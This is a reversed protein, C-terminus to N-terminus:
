FMGREEEPNFGPGRPGIAQNLEPSGGGVMGPPQDDEPFKEGTPMEPPLPQVLEEPAAGGLDGEPPAPMQQQVAAQPDQGYAQVWSPLGQMQMQLQRYHEALHKDYFEQVEPSLDRFSPEKMRTLLESIHVQHNEWWRVKIKMHNSEDEMDVNEQRQYNRDSTDDDYFQDLGQTGFAKRFRVLTEPDEAPGFGGIQLLQLSLEKEYSEFKPLMSGAAVEVDTSDIFERQFLMVEPRKMEGLVSITQEVNMNERWMELLNTGLDSFADELSRAAGSLKVADQDALMGIARGSVVGSPNRGQSVEHVGSVDYMNTKLTNVLEYLSAPIPVPPVRQPAPGLNPNYFIIHDPRNKIGNRGVSGAAATWPPSSSLNRLELVQSITRNLEKQLPIIGSVVGTGWFRGAMEGIRVQTLSFRGGPLPTEELLTAGSSLIRRGGPHESSPKEQYELVRYVKKEDLGTTYGRVDRKWMSDSDRSGSKLKRQFDISEVAGPWRMELAAETLVHALIVWKSNSLHTAEPDPYVDFPSWAEVVPFGSPKLDLGDQVLDGAHPNWYTNFFGSGAVSAWWVVEYTVSPMKMKRYLYDLLHGSAKAKQRRDDEAGGPRVIWGPRQQTLKSATTNVIPRILNNTLRVRYSPAKPELPRGHKYTVYQRGDYFAHNTWWEDNLESKMDKSHRFLRDIEAALQEEKTGTGTTDLIRM